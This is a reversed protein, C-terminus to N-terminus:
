ISLIKHGIQQMKKTGLYCCSLLLMQQSPKEEEGTTALLGVGAAGRVRM